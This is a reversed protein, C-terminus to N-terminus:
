RWGISARPRPRPGSSTSSRGTWTSGPSRTGSKSPPPSSPSTASCSWVWGWGSRARARSSSCRRGRSSPRSARTSRRARPTRSISRWCRRSTTRPSWWPPSAIPDSYRACPPPAASPPWARTRPSRISAFNAAAAELSAPSHGSLTLLCPRPPAGESAQQRPAPAPRPPAEGLVVHANIGTVGFANVGAVLEAKPRPWDRLGTCVELPWRQWDFAPTAPTANITPPLRRHRLALAVKIVGAIGATGETHGVNSKISGVLLPDGAPRGECLVDAISSLEIPDGVKTGTGHAELYQIQGPETRADELARRLLQAQGDTSPQMYPSSAGGHNIAGGRVVAYIEDGDAVAQELTKLVVVAVGDSRVTGDADKCFPKSHGNPALMSASSYGMTYVPDVLLNCGGAVALSCDGTQLARCALHLAALSSSCATDVMMSPGRFDLASSIRGALGSRMSSGVWAYVDYSSPDLLFAREYEAYLSGIYVGTASGQLSEPVLHADQLAEWTVNLLIRAQPDLKEAERGSIGFFSADFRDADEIVGATTTYLKGPTGPRPDFADAARYREEPVERIGSKGACLNRWLAAPSNSGPLRCGIGTIAIPKM